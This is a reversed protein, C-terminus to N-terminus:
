ELALRKEEALRKEQEAKREAEERRLREQELRETELRQREQERELAIDPKAIPPPDPIPKVPDAVPPASAPKPDPVPNPEPPRPTPPKWLEAQVAVPQQTQWNIGVFLMAFLLLHVALAFGFARFNRQGPRELTQLSQGRLGALHGGDLFEAPGDQES